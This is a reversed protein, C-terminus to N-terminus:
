RRRSPAITMWYVHNARGVDVVDCSLQYNAWRELLKLSKVVSRYSLGHSNIRFQGWTGQERPLVGSARIRQEVFEARGRASRPVADSVAGIDVTWADVGRMKGVPDLVARQEDDLNAIKKM